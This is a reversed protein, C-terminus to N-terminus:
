TFGRGLPLKSHNRKLKSWWSNWRRLWFSFKNLWNHMKTFAQEVTLDDESPDLACGRVYHHQNKWRELTGLDITRKAETQEKAKFKVYCAGDLLDQYNQNKGPEFYVLAASLVVSNSEVGLTEVDFMFM